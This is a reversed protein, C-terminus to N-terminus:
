RVKSRTFNILIIERPKVLMSEAPLGPEAARVSPIAARQHPPMGHEFAADVVDIGQHPRAPVMGLGVAAAVEAEEGVDCWSFTM